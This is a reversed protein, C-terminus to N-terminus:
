QKASLKKLTVEISNLSIIPESDVQYDAEKCLEDYKEISTNIFVRDGTHFMDKYELDAKIRAYMPYEMGLAILDSDSNTSQYNIEILTPKKFLRIGNKEYQTCLYINRKNRQLCRM